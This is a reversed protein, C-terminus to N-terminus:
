TPLEVPPSGPTDPSMPRNAFSQWSARNDRHVWSMRNGFDQGLPPSLMFAPTAPTPLEAFYINSMKREVFTTRATSPTAPTFGKWLKAQRYHRSSPSRRLKCHRYILLIISLVAIIGAIGVAVGVGLAASPSLRPQHKQTPPTLPPSSPTSSPSAKTHMTPLSTLTSFSTSRQFIPRSTESLEMTTAATDIAKTRVRTTSPGAITSFAQDDIKGLKTSALARGFRVRTSKSSMFVGDAVTFDLGCDYGNMSNSLQFGGDGQTKITWLMSEDTKRRSYIVPTSEECIGNNNKVALYGHVGSAKTRLLYTFSGLSILQWQQGPTSVDSTTITVLGTDGNIYPYTGALSQQPNGAVTLRYWSNPDVEM